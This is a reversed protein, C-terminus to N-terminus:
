TRKNKELARARRIKGMEIKLALNSEKLMAIEDELTKIPVHKGILTFHKPIKFVDPFTYKVGSIYLREQFVCKVDCMYDKSATNAKNTKVAM